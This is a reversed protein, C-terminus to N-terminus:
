VLLTNLSQSAHMEAARHIHTNEQIRRPITRCLHLIFGQNSGDSTCSWPTSSVSKDSPCPRAMPNPRDLRCINSFVYAFQMSRKSPCLVGHPKGKSQGKEQVQEWDEKEGKYASVLDCPLLTHLSM